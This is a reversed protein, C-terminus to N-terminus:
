SKRVVLLMDIHLTTSYWSVNSPSPTPIKDIIESIKKNSYNVLIKFDKFSQCRTDTTNQNM